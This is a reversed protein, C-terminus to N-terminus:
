GGSVVLQTHRRYWTNKFVDHAENPAFRFVDGNIEFFVDTNQNNKQLELTDEKNICVQGQIPNKSFQRFKLSGFVRVGGVGGKTYARYRFCRNALRYVKPTSQPGSQVTNQNPSEFRPKPTAVKVAAAAGTIPFRQSEGNPNIITVDRAFLDIRIREATYQNSLLVSNSERAVEDFQSVGKRANDLRWQKEGTQQLVSRGFAVRSVNAASVNSDIRPATQNFPRPSDFRRDSQPRIDVVKISSVKDDWFRDFCRIDRDINAFDGKFDDHEYIRVEFGEPVRISSIRDNKFNVKGMNGHEGPEVQAADGGFNCFDYIQVGETQAHIAQGYFAMGAAVTIVFTKISRIFM